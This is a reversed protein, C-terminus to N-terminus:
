KVLSIAAAIADRNTTWMKEDFTHRPLELTIMPIQRDIGAWSGMSGPTPYGITPTPPYGNHRSMAEAIQKAPGDYNDCPAEMSHISIILRPALQEITQMLAATEPESASAQGGFNNRSRGRSRTSWNSAPFNRNLDVRNANVRTHAAYGDPNAIPIIVVPVGGTLEPHKALEEAFTHALTAAGTEDGHIAGMVLVPRAMDGFRRMEIPRHQVSYGIVSTVPPSAIPAPPQMM